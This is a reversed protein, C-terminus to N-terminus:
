GHRQDDCRARSERDIFRFVRVQCALPVSNAAGLPVWALRAATSLLGWESRLVLGNEICAESVLVCASVAIIRSKGAPCRAHRPDHGRDIRDLDNDLRLDCIDQGFVDHWAPNIGVTAIPGFLDLWRERSVRDAFP